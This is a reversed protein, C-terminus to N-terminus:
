NYYVRILIQKQRTHSRWQTSSNILIISHHIPRTRSVVFNVKSPQLLMLNKGSFSGVLDYDNEILEAVSVIQAGYIPRTLVKILFCNWATSILIGSILILAIFLRVRRSKPHYTTHPMGIFAPMAVILVCYHLENKMSKAHKQGHKMLLYLILGEFYIAALALCWIPKTTIQWVNLWVPIPKARSVCWTREDQM